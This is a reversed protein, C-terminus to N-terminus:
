AESARRPPRCAGVEQLVRQYAALTAVAQRQGGPRVLMLLYRDDDFEDYRVHFSVPRVTAGAHDQALIHRLEGLTLAAGAAYPDAPLRGERPQNTIWPTPLYAYEQRYIVYDSVRYTLASRAEFLYVIWADAHREADELTFRRTDLDALLADLEDRTM